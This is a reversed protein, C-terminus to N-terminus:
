PYKTPRDSSVWHRRGKPMPPAPLLIKAWRNRDRSRFVGHGRRGEEGEGPCIRTSLLISFGGGQPELDFCFSATATGRLVHLTELWGQQISNQPKLGLPWWLGSFFKPKREHQPVRSFRLHKRKGLTSPCLHTSAEGTNAAAWFQNTDRKHGEGVLLLVSTGNAKWNSLSLTAGGWSFFIDRNSEAGRSFFYPFGM